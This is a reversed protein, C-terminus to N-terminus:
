PHRESTKSLLGFRRQRESFSVLATNLEDKTFAPWLTTTFYFEAYASQWLLFNSLRQEGGTRIILDLEWPIVHTDLSTAITKEDIEDPSITGAIVQRALSRVTKTLEERAGYNLALCLIMGDNHETLSMLDQLPGAASAPLRSIDGITVLRINNELIEDRETKVYEALLSMLSEIEDAPRGWNQASFAYLTLAKVGLERCNSVVDRVAKAGRQHGANRPLDRLEAWRGNGDM